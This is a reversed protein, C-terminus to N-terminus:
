KVFLILQGIQDVQTSVAFSRKFGRFYFPFLLPFFSSSIDEPNSHKVMIANTTQAAGTAETWTSPRTITFTRIFRKANIPAAVNSSAMSKQKRLFRDFNKIFLASAFFFLYRKHSVICYTEEFKCNVLYKYHNYFKDGCDKSYMTNCNYCKLSESRGLCVMLVSLMLLARLQFCHAPLM